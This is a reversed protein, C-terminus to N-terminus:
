ADLVMTACIVPLQHVTPGLPGQTARTMSLWKDHNHHVSGAEESAHCLSLLACPEDTGLIAMM